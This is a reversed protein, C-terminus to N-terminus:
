IHQFDEMTIIAIDLLRQGDFEIAVLVMKLNGLISLVEIHLQQPLEFLEFGKEM